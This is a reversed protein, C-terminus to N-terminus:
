RGGGRRRCDNVIQVFGDLDDVVHVKVGHEAAREMFAQQGLNLRGRPHEATKTRKTEILITQGNVMAVLDPFGLTTGSHRGGRQCVEALFVGMAEAAARIDAVLDRELQHTV